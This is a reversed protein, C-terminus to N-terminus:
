QALGMAVAFAWLRGYVAVNSLTVCFGSVTAVATLWWVGNILREAQAETM